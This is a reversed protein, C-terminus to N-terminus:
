TGKARAKDLIENRKQLSAPGLSKIGARPGGQGQFNGRAEKLGKLSELDSLSIKKAM